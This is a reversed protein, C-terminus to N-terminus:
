WRHRQCRHVIKQRHRQCRRYIKPKKTKKQVTDVVGPSIYITWRYWRCRRYFKWRHRQCRQVAYWRHRQCRHYVTIRSYRQLNKFFNLFAGISYKPAQLVSIWSFFKFDFIEHIYPLGAMVQKLYWTNRYPKSAMVYKIAISQTSVSGTTHTMVSGGDRVVPLGGGEKFPLM